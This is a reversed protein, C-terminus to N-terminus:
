RPAFEIPVTVTAIGRDPPPFSLGFFARVVCSVVVGDAMNSGGNGINSVNGRPDIVFRVSVRGALDPNLPGPRYCDRFAAQRQRVVRLVQDHRYRFVTAPAIHVRGPQPRAPRHLLDLSMGLAWPHSVLPFPPDRTDRGLPDPGLTAGTGRLGYPTVVRWACAPDPWAERQPECSLQRAQLQLSFFPDDDRLDVAELGWRQWWWPDDTLLGDRVGTTRAKWGRWRRDNQWEEDDEHEAEEAQDKDDIAVLAKTIYLKDERRVGDEDVDPGHEAAEHRFLAFTGCAVLAVSAFVRLPDRLSQLSPRRGVVRGARVLGVDFVLPEGEYDVDTQEARYSGGAGRARLTLSVRAGIELPVRVGGKVATVSAGDVEVLVLDGGEPPREVPFDSADGGVCFRRPPVLHRVALLDAGWLVRVELALAAREVEDASLPPRSAVLTYSLAHEKTRRAPAPLSGGPGEPGTPLELPPQRMAFAVIGAFLLSFGFLLTLAVAPDTDSSPTPLNQRAFVVFLGVLAAGGFVAGLVRVLAARGPGPEGRAGWLAALVFSVVTGFLWIRLPLVDTRSGVADALWVPFPMPKPYIDPHLSLFRARVGIAVGFGVLSGGATLVGAGLGGALRTM